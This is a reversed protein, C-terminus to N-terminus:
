YRVSAKGKNDGEGKYRAEPHNEPEETVGQLVPDLRPV